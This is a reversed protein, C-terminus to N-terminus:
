PKFATRLTVVALLGSTLANWGAFSLGLIRLAADTCSPPVSQELQQLFDATNTALGGDVAGCDAPGEWFGWEVGSHHVGLVLSYVLILGTIIMLGRTLFAPWKFLLSLVAFGAIPIGVYWPERQQLCLKCPQYGGIHEFALASFIVACMVLMTGIYIKFHNAPVADQLMQFDSSLLSKETM